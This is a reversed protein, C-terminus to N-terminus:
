SVARKSRKPRQVWIHDSSWIMNNSVRVNTNVRLEAVTEFPLVLQRTVPSEVPPRFPSQGNFMDARFAFHKAEGQWEVRLTFHPVEQFRRLVEVPDFGFSSLLAITVGDTTFRPGPARLLNWQRWREGQEARLPWLAGAVDDPTEVFLQRVKHKLDADLVRVHLVAVAHKVVERPSIDALHRAVVPKLTVDSVVLFGASVAIANLREQWTAKGIECRYRVLSKRARDVNPLALVLDGVFEGVLRESNQETYESIAKLPLEVGQGVPVNLSLASKGDSLTDLKVWTQEIAVAQHGAADLAKRVKRVILQAIEDCIQPESNM